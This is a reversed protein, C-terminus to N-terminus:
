PQDNADIQRPADDITAIYECEFVPCLCDGQKELESIANSACWSSENRHFEIDDKTWYHPVEVDVVFTYKLKVLKKITVCERGHYEGVKSHCYFCEDPKGAPRIGDDSKLVRPWNGM